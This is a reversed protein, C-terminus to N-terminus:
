HSKRWCKQYSKRWFCETFRHVSGDPHCTPGILFDHVIGAQFNVVFCHQYYHISTAHPFLMVLPFIPKETRQHVFRHVCQGWRSYDSPGLAQVKQQTSFISSNSVYVMGCLVIWVSQTVLLAPPKPSITRLINCVMMLNHCTFQDDEGQKVQESCIYWNGM